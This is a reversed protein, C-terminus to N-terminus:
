ILICSVRLQRFYLQSLFRVSTRLYSGAHTGRPQSIPGVIGIPGEGLGLQVAWLLSCNWPPCGRYMCVYGTLFISQTYTAACSSTWIVSTNQSLVGFQTQYFVQVWFWYWSDSVATQSLQNESQSDSGMSRFLSDERPELLSSSWWLATVLFLVARSVGLGVLAAEWEVAPSSCTQVYATFVALFLREVLLFFIGLVTGWRVDLGIGM